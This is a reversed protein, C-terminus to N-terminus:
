VITTESGPAIITFEPRGRPSSPDTESGYGVSTTCCNKKAAEAYELGERRADELGEAVIQQLEERMKKSEVLSVAQWVQLLSRPPLAEMPGRPIREACCRSRFRGAECLVRLLRGLGFMFGCLALGGATIIGAIEGDSLQM